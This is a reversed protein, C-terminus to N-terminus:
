KNTVTIEYVATYEDKCMLIYLKDGHEYATKIPALADEGFKQKIVFKVTGDHDFATYYCEGKEYRQLVLLDNVLGIFNVMYYSDVKYVGSKGDRKYTVETMKRYDDPNKKFGANRFDNEESIEGNETIRYPVSGIFLIVRGDVQSTELMMTHENRLFVPTGEPGFRYINEQDFVAYICGSSYVAYTLKSDPRDAIRLDTSSVHKGDESYREAKVGLCDIIIVDGNECFTINSPCYDDGPVKKCKVRNEGEGEYARCVEKFQLDVDKARSLIEFRGLAWEPEGAEESETSEEREATYEEETEIVDTNADTGPDGADEGETYGNWEPETASKEKTEIVSGPNGSNDAKVGAATKGGSDAAFGICSSSIIIVLLLIVIVITRKKMNKM